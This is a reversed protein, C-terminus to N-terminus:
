TTWAEMGLAIAVQDKASRLTDTTGSTRAGEKVPADGVVYWDWPYDDLHTGTKHAEAVIGLNDLRAVWGPGLKSRHWTLRPKM